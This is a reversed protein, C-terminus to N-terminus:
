KDSEPAVTAMQSATEGIAEIGLSDRVTSSVSTITFPAGWRGPRFAIRPIAPAARGRGRRVCRSSMANQIYEEPDV